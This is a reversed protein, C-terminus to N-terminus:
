FPAGTDCVATLNRTTKIYRALDDALVLKSIGSSRRLYCSTSISHVFSYCFSSRSAKPEVVFFAKMGIACIRQRSVLCVIVEGKVRTGSGLTTCAGGIAVGMVGTASGLTTGVGAGVYGTRVAVGGVLAVLCGCGTGRGALRAVRRM